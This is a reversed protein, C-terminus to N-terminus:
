DGLAAPRRDNQVVRGARTLEDIAPIAVIDLFDEPLRDVTLREGVCAEALVEDGTSLHIRVRHDGEILVSLDGLKSGVAFASAARAEASFRSSTPM